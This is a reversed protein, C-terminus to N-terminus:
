QPVILIFVILSSYSRPNSCYIRKSACNNKLNPKGNSDKEIGIFDIGLKKCGNKLAERSAHYEMEKIENKIDTIQKSIDRLENISEEIKWISIVSNRSPSFTKIIGM